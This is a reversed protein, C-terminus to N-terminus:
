GPKRGWALHVIFTATLDPNNVLAEGSEPASLTKLRRCTAEDVHDSTRKVLNKLYESLYTREDEGLPAARDHTYTRLAFDALGAERFVPRLDRGVYFKRPEETDEALSKLEATRVALEVEVPWPLIAQHLTDSELVAVIGGPRTVRLMHRLAEVPSPLSYLSQACWCLDFAGDPFPLDDIPACAFEVNPGLNAARAVELYKPILDVAVVRGSPGVREALWPLYAGDGCAMDLVTQGEGIPLSHVIGRLEEAFARHYAALMREYGPLQSKM